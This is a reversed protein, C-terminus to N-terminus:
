KNSLSSFSLPVYSEPSKVSSVEGPRCCTEEDDVQRISNEDRHSRDFGEDKCFPCCTGAKKWEDSFEPYGDEKNGYKYALVNMCRECAISEILIAEGLTYDGSNVMGVIEKEFGGGIYNTFAFIERSGYAEWKDPWPEDEKCTQTGHCDGCERKKYGKYDDNFNKMHEPNHQCKDVDEQRIIKLHTERVELPFRSILYLAGKPDVEDNPNDIVNGDEDEYWLTKLMSKEIKM